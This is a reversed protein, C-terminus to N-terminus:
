EIFYSAFELEVSYKRIVPRDFTLLHCGAKVILQNRRFVECWTTRVTGDM